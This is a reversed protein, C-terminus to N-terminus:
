FVLRYKSGLTLLKVLPLNTLNEPYVTHKLKYYRVNNFINEYILVYIIIIFITYYFWVGRICVQKLPIM